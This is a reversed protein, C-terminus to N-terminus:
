EKKNSLTVEQYAIVIQLAQAPEFGQNILNRYYNGLLPAYDRLMSDMQELAQFYNM